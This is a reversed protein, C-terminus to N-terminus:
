GFRVEGTSRPFNMRASMRPTGGALGGGFYDHDVAQFPRTLRAVSATEGVFQELRSPRGVTEVHTATSAGFMEAAAAQIVGAFFHVLRWEDGPGPRAEDISVHSLVPSVLLGKLERRPLQRAIWLTEASPVVDAGKGALLFVPTTMTKM